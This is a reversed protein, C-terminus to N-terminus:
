FLPQQTKILVKDEDGAAMGALAMVRQLVTVSLIGDGTIGVEGLPKGGELQTLDVFAGNMRQSVVGVVPPVSYQEPSGSLSASVMGGKWNLTGAAETVQMDGDVSVALENVSLEGGATVGMSQIFPNLMSADAVATVDYAGKGSVGSYATGSLKFASSELGLAVAFRGLLLAGPQLNWQAVVRENFPGQPRGVVFGDWVSGGVGEVAFPIMPALQPGVVGWVFSAPLQNLAFLGTSVMGVLVYTKIKM